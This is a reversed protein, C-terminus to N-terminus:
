RAIFTCRASLRASAVPLRQVFSCLVTAAYIGATHLMYGDMGVYSVRMGAHM